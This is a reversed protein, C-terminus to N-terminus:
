PQGSRWNNYFRVVDLPNKIQKNVIKEALEPCDSFFLALAKRRLGFLGQSVRILKSDEDKKFYGIYDIYGSDADEFEHHYYTVFGKEVVKFFEPSGSGVISTYNQDFFKGSDQIWLTEFLSGAKKYGLIEKPSYKSKGRKGKFKVKKFLSGFPHPKRDKIFGYLTDNSKLVIYGEEFNKQGFTSFSIILAILFFHIRFGRKLSFDFKSLFRERTYCM